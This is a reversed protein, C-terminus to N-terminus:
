AAVEGDFVTATPGEMLVEHGEGAWEIHLDGGPLSVRVCAGLAGQVQGVVVAACAGSGCALTEGVGREFVRLRIHDPAVVQMFGVNVGEPFDALAQISPGLRAVPAADVDAVRLVAHPNGMSVAGADVAEGGPLLRYSLARRQARLPITHPELQPEGMSACVRGAGLLHVRMLGGPTEVAFRDGDVMGRERAHVAFCRLGNGCQQAERGDANFIRMAIAAQAHRARIAVLVQDCGVGLRRDAIQRLREPSLDLAGDRDDLLVFDNGNGHMKTFRLSMARLRLPAEPLNCGVGASLPALHEARTTRLRQTM